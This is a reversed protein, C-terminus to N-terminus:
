MLDNYIGLGFVAKKLDWRWFIQSRDGQKSPAQNKSEPNKMAITNDRIAVTKKITGKLCRSHLFRFIKEQNKVNM